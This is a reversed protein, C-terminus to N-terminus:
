CSFELIKDLKKISRVYCNDVIELRIRLKPHKKLFNALFSFTNSSDASLVAKKGAKSWSNVSSSLPMIPSILSTLAM